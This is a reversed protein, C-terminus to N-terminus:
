VRRPPKRGGAKPRKRGDAGGDIRLVRLEPRGMAAALAAERAAEASCVTASRVRSAPLVQVVDDGEPSPVSVVVWQEESLVVRGHVSAGDDLRVVGYFEAM